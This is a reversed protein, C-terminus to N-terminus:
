EADTGPQLRPRSVSLGAKAALDAFAAANRVAAGGADNNFYVHFDGSTDGIRDVWSRLAARGYSPFPRATGQHLRLYGWDATRWLPNIPRGAQDSWCLAAGHHTLLAHIEETWWSSHRPEVAVRVSPPFCTLCADLREPTVTLTPPLQLLVPGLRDGLGRAAQLMRHVPEQPDKLRKIHTLFRSAKLAMVFEEPTRERWSDFTAPSPLRYFAGDNEVSSFHRAYEELWLRQPVGSPYLVGRWDRYEWGCTGVHIM